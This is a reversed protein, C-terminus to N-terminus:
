RPSTVPISSCATAIPCVLRRVSSRRVNRLQSALCCVSPLARVVIARRAVATRTNVAHANRVPRASVSGPADSPVGLACLGSGGASFALSALARSSDAATRASSPLATPSRSTAMRSSSYAVPM